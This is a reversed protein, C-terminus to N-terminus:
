VYNSDTSARLYSFPCSESVKHVGVSDQKFTTSLTLPPIVANTESSPDSGVHIARTGFSYQSM